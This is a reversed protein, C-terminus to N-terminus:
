FTFGRDSLFSKLSVISNCERDSAIHLFKELGLRKRLSAPMWVVQAIGGDGSIFDRSLLYADSVAMVGPVQKGVVSKMLGYFTKRDPAMGEFERSIIFVGNVDANRYALNQAYATVPPPDHLLSHLNLTKIEGESLIRAFKNVGTFQMKSRDVLEGKEISFAETSNTLLASARVSDYSLECQPPHNVSVICFGNKSYRQCYTCILLPSDLDNRRSIANRREEKYASITPKLTTLRPTDFILNVSVQTLLLREKLKNYVEGGLEMPDASEREVSLKFFGDTSFRMWPHHSFLRLLEEEIYESLTIDVDRDGIDVIVGVDSGPSGRVEVGDTGGMARVVFFSSYTGGYEKVKTPASRSQFTDDLTTVKHAGINPKLARIKGFLDDVGDVPIYNLYPYLSVRSFIPLSLGNLARIVNAEFEDPAEWVITGALFKSHLIKSLYFVDRPTWNYFLHAFRLVNQIFGVVDAPEEMFTMKLGSTSYNSCEPIPSFGFLFCSTPPRKQFLELFERDSIVEGFFLSALQSIELLGLLVLPNKGYIVEIEEPSKSLLPVTDVLLSNVILRPDDRRVSFGQLARALRKINFTRRQGAM